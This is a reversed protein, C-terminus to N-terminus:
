YSGQTFYSGLLILAVLRSRITLFLSQITLLETTRIAPATCLETARLRQRPADRQWRSASDSAALAIARALGGDRGGCFATRGRRRASHLRTTCRHSGAPMGSHPHVCSSCSTSRPSHSPVLATRPPHARLYLRAVHKFRTHELLQLSPHTLM